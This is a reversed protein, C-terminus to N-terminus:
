MGAIVPGAVLRDVLEPLERSSLVLHDAPLGQDALVTDRTYDNPICVAKMGAKKAAHIGRVTDEFALCAAPPVGLQHAVQRFFAPTHRTEAGATVVRHFADEIGLIELIRMASHQSICSVLAYRVPHQRRMLAMAHPWASNRVVLPDALMQAFFQKHIHLFVEAPTKVGFERQRASAEKRLGFRRVLSAAADARDWKALEKYATIVEAEQLPGESLVLATRAYSYAKLREIQVLTGGLDFIVAEFM